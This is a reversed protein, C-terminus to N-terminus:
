SSAFVRTRLRGLPVGGRRDYLQIQVFLRRARHKPTAAWVHWTGHENTVRPVLSIDRSQDLQDGSQADILQWRIPLQKDRYGTIVFDFEVLVGRRALTDPRYPARSEEIRDLYQGFTVNRDLTPRDLTVSETQTPGEPKLSPWLLFVVGLLTGVFAVITAVSRAGGLLADRRRPPEDRGARRRRGTSSV